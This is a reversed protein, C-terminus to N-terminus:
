RVVEISPIRNTLAPEIRGLLRNAAWCVVGSLAVALAMLRAEISWAMTLGLLVLGALLLAESVRQLIIRLDTQPRVEAPGYGLSRLGEDMVKRVAVAQSELEYDERYQEVREAM